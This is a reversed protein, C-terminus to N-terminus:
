VLADLDRPGSPEHPGASFAVDHHAGMRRSSRRDRGPSAGQEPLADRKRRASAPIRSTVCAGCTREFGKASAELERYRACARASGSAGMERSIGRFLTLFIGAAVALTLLLSGFTLQRTRALTEERQLLLKESREDMRATADRIARMRRAGEDSAVAEKASSLGAEDFLATIEGLLELRREVHSALEALDVAHGADGSVYGRITQLQARPSGVLREYEDRRDQRITLLYAAQAAEAGSLVLSLTALAERVQEGRAIGQASETFDISAPVQLGRGRVACSRRSSRPLSKRRSRPASSRVRATPPKGAAAVITGAGLLVFAITRPSLLRWRNSVM